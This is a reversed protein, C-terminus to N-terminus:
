ALQMSYFCTGDLINSDSEIQDLSAVLGIFFALEAIPASNPRRPTPPTSTAALLLVLHLKAHPVGAKFRQRLVGNSSASEIM